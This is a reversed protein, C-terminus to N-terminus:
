LLIVITLTNKLSKYEVEIATTIYPLVNVKSILSIATGTEFYWFTSFHIIFMKVGVILFSFCCTKFFQLLKSNFKNQQSNQILM